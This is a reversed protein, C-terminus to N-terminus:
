KKFGARLATSCSEIQADLEGADVAGRLTELAAILQDNGDVEVAAKGKALEVPKAGYRLAVCTKGNEGTWWWERVRKPMEVSRTMGTEADKVNRMRTASYQRGEKQAKALEIQEGLKKLLKTRRQVVPAVSTSRKAAVLKLGALASM